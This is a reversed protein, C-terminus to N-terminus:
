GVVRRDPAANFIYRRVFVECGQKKLAARLLRDLDEVATEQMYPPIDESLLELLFDAM